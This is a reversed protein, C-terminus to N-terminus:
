EEHKDLLALALCYGHGFPHKPDNLMIKMNNETALMTSNIIFDDEVGYKDKYYQMSQENPGDVEIILLNEGKKIKEQLEKFKPQQRILRCYEKVYVKKRATIIKKKMFEMKMKGYHLNSM